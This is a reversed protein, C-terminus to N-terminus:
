APKGGSAAMIADWMRRSVALSDCITGDADPYFVVQGTAEFVVLWALDTEPAESAGTMRWATALLGRVGRGKLEIVDGGLLAAKALVAGAPQCPIATAGLAPGFALVFCGAAFAAAAIM